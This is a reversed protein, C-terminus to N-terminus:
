EEITLAIEEIAANRKKFKDLVEIRNQTGKNNVENRKYCKSIQKCKLM